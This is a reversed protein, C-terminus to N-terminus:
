HTLSVVTQDLTREMQWVSWFKLSTYAIVPPLIASAAEELDAWWCPLRSPWAVSSSAPDNLHPPFRYLGWIKRRGIWESICWRGEGTLTTPCHSSSPTPCSHFLRFDRCYMCGQWSGRKWPFEVLRRLTWLAWGTYRMVNYIINGRHM